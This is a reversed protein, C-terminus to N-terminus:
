GKFTDGFLARAESAADQVEHEAAHAAAEREARLQQLLAERDGELRTDTPQAEIGAAKAAKAVAADLERQTTLGLTM